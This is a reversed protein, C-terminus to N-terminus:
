FCRIRSQDAPELGQNLFRIGALRGLVGIIHGLLYEVDELAIHGRKGPRFRRSGAHRQFPLPFRPLAGSLLAAGRRASLASHAALLITGVGLAELIHQVAVM